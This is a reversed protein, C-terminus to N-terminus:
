RIRDIMSEPHMDIQHKDYEKIAIEQKCYNCIVPM